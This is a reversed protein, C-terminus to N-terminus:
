MQSAAKRSATLIEDSTKEDNVARALLLAGVAMAVVAMARQRNTFADGTDVDAAIKDVIRNVFSTYAGRVDDDARSIEGSLCPLICGSAPNDRHEKSLYMDLIEDLSRAAQQSNPDDAEVAFSVTKDVVERFLADKSDFHNYFGGVTLGISEMIHDIRTPKYGEERFCRAAAVLIQERTQKKQAQKSNM